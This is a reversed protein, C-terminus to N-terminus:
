STRAGEIRDIMIANARDRPVGAALLEEFQRRHEDLEDMAPTSCADCMFIDGELLGTFEVRSETPAGCKLCPASMGGVM